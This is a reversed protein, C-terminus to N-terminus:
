SRRTTAPFKYTLVIDERPEKTAMFAATEAAKRATDSQDVGVIIDNM